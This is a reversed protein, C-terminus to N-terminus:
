RGLYPYSVQISIPLWLGSVQPFFVDEVIIQVGVTVRKPRSAGICLYSDCVVQIAPPFAGPSLEALHAKAIQRAVDTVVPARSPNTLEASPIASMYRAANQAATHAATYHWFYRGLYLPFALLVLLLPILM